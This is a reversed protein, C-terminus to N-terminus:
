GIRRVVEREAETLVPNCADIILIARPQDSDNWAEHEITDDFAWAEGERWERTDAGVRFGCGPPVILPLHVTVRTNSTGTHPPIRTRPKLISFMVTPAKGPIDLMPAEEIAAATRPCRACNEDNRAGNEWFFWASWDLSHNLEAWQNLPVGAGYAVYPRFRDDDDAWLSFMEARIADTHEELQDFWPFLSRDFFEFATLYPFQSGTPRQQFIMRNGARNKAYAEARGLDADMNEAAVQELAAAFTEMKRDGAEDLVRRAAALREAIPPPFQENPDLGEFFLRYLELGEEDKGLAFLAEGKDLIAPLYYPDASLARNLSELQGAFDGTARQARALNLLLPPAPDIDVARQFSGAAAASDRLELELIGLMNWVTPADAHEAAGGRLLNVAGGLDGAQRLQSAQDLLIRPDGM